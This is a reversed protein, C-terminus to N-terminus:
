PSTDISEAAYGVVPASEWEDFPDNQVAQRGAYRGLEWAIRSEWLTMGILEGDGTKFVHTEVLGPQTRVAEGFRRMSAALDDVAHLRPKHISMHLYM